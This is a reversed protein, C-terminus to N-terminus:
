SSTSPRDRFRLAPSGHRRIARDKAAALVRATDSALDTSLPINRGTSANIAGVVRNFDKTGVDFDFVIVRGPMALLM